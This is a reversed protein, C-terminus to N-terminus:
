SSSYMGKAVKELSEKDYTNMTLNLKPMYTSGGTVMEKTEVDYIAYNGKFEKETDKFSYFFYVQRDPSVTQHYNIDINPYTRLINGDFTIYNLKEVENFLIKKRVNVSADPMEKFLATDLHRQQQKSKQKYRQFVEQHIPYKLDRLALYFEDVTEDIVKEKNAPHLYENKDSPTTQSYVPSGLYMSFSFLFIFVFSSILFPNKM